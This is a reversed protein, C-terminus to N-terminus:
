VHLRIQPPCATLSVFYECVLSVEKRRMEEWPNYAEPPKHGQSKTPLQQADPPARSIVTRCAVCSWCTSDLSGKRFNKGRLQESKVFKQRVRKAM